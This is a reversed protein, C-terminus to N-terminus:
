ESELDKVHVVLTELCARASGLHRDDIVLTVLEPDVLVHVLDYGCSGNTLSDGESHWIFTERDNLSEIFAQPWHTCWWQLLFRLTHISTKLPLTLDHEGFRM